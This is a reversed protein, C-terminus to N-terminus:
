KANSFVYNGSTNTQATRASNTGTETMTVTAGPVAEGQTDTVSGLLTGKVAQAWSASPLAVILLALIGTVVLAWHLRSSMDQGGRALIGFHDRALLM